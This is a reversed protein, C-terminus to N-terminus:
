EIKILIYNEFFYTINNKDQNYVWLEYKLDKHISSPKGLIIEVEHISMGLTIKKNIKIDKYIKKKQIYPGLNIKTIAHNYENLKSDILNMLDNLADEKIM